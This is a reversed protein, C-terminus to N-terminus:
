QRGSLYKIHRYTASSLCTVTLPDMKDEGASFVVWQGRADTWTLDEVEGNATDIDNYLAEHDGPSINLLMKDSELTNSDVSTNDALSDEHATHSLDSMSECCIPIVGM